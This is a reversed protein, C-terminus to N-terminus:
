NTDEVSIKLARCKGSSWSTRHSVQTELLVCQFNEVLIWHLHVLDSMLQSQFIHQTVM